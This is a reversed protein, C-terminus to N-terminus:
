KNRRSRYLFVTGASSLEAIRDRYQKWFDDTEPEIPNDSRSGATLKFRDLNSQGTRERTNVRAKVYLTLIDIYRQSLTFEYEVDTASAPIGHAGEYDILVDNDGPDVDLYLFGASIHYFLARTGTVVRAGPRTRRRELYSGLPVQISIERIFGQPLEFKKPSGEFVTLSVEDFRRPLHASIDWLGDRVYTFLLADSWKPTTGSDNLESRLETLYESWKM